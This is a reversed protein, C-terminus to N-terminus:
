WGRILVRLLLQVGWSRCFFCRNLSVFFWKNNISGNRKKKVLYSRFLRNQQLGGKVMYEVTKWFVQCDLWNCNSKWHTSGIEHPFVGSLAVPIGQTTVSHFGTVPQYIPRHWITFPLEIGPNKVSPAVRSIRCAEFLCPVDKEFFETHQLMLIGVPLLSTLSKAWVRLFLDWYIWVTYSKYLYYHVHKNWYNSLIAVNFYLYLNYPNIEAM